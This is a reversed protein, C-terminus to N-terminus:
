DGWPARSQEDGLPTTALSVDDLFMSSFLSDDTVVEFRITVTQGAYPTLDLSTGLWNSSNSDSCLNANLVRTDNVYIHAFDYGCVDESFFQYYFHLHLAPSSPLAFSQWLQSTENNSGGLWALWVGSRPPPGDGTIIIEYGNSSSEGWSGDRGNEFNGNLVTPISGSPPTATPTPTPPPPTAAPRLVMPMYAHNDLPGIPVGCTDFKFTAIRTNWQGAPNYQGTFWFTCDDAPDVNMSTYDGYRNSANAATGEVITHEGLPLTGAPSNAYRGAYRLGPHLSSSGVNYAVAINGAQDMSASSMWRSHGDSPAYTGEQQLAWNGTGTRRMEFWRVGARDSGVNTALTGVLTQYSGFNRYQLRWMIVERLPDLRTSTGPQPVCEYSSLGCLNSNFEAVAIDQRKTFTSSAPTTWNATFEWIELFDQSPNNSGSNHVEDDRHRMFIAPAGAPPATPGDLDAPTLMQFGFGALGPATRRIMAAPAGTLMAARNFAYVAPGGAENTGVYYGDPWVGYKPYDPFNPTNFQYAYWSGTPDATQSIYMCLANVAGSFESIMWRNALRDYLVIPDGAGTACGGGSSLSSLIFNGVATGSKNYIQVRSGSGHNIMQIYHNLGVDGVTDPPNVNSYGQGNFNLIPTGFADIAEPARSNAQIELLPDPGQEIAVGIPSNLSLRPNVERDLVPDLPFSDASPLDRVPLSLTPTVIQVGEWGAGGRSSTQAITGAASRGNLGVTPQGSPFTFWMLLGGLTALALWTKWNM